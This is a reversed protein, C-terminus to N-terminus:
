RDTQFESFLKTACRLRRIGHLNTLVTVTLQRTPLRDTQTPCTQVIESAPSQTIVGYSLPPVAGRVSPILHWLVWLTQFLPVISSVVLPLTQGHRTIKVTAPRNIPEPQMAETLIRILLVISMFAPTGHLTGITILM